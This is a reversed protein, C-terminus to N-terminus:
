QSPLPRVEVPLMQMVYIVRPEPLAAPGATRIIAVATSVVLLMIALAAAPLPIAIRERWRGWFAATLSRGQEPTAKPIGLVRRDLSPPVGPDPLLSAVTRFHLSKQLFQRCGTCASLHGFLTRASEDDLEYDIYVSVMEQYADCSM